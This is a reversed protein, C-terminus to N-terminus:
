VNLVVVSGRLRKLDLERGDLATVILAPAARGVEDDAALSGFTVLLTVAGLRLRNAFTQVRSNM